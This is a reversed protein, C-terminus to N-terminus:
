SRTNIIIQFIEIISYLFLLGIAGVILGVVLGSLKVSLVGMILATMNGLFSVIFINTMYHQLIKPGTVRTRMKLFTSCDSCEGEQQTFKWRYSIMSNPIGGPVYDYWDTKDLLESKYWPFSCSSIDSDIPLIAAFTATAINVKENEEDDRIKRDISPPLRSRDNFHFDICEIAEYAGQFNRGLPRVQYLLTGITKRDLYVRLAFYVRGDAELNESASQIAATKISLLTGTLDPYTELELASKDIQKQEDLM